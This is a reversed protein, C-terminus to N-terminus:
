RRPGPSSAPGARPRDGPAPRCRIRVGVHDGIDVEADAPGLGGRHRRRDAQEVVGRVRDDIVDPGPTGVVAVGHAPGLVGAAGAEDHGAGAHGGVAQGHLVVLLVLHDPATLAARVDEELVLQRVVHGALGRPHRCGGLVAVGGEQDAGPDPRELAVAQAAVREEVLAHVDGIGHGELRGLGGADLEVVYEGLEQVAGAADVRDDVAGAGGDVRGGVAGAVHYRVGIAVTSRQRGQYPRCRDVSIAM